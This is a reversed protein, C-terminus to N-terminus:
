AAVYGMENKLFEVFSMPNGDGYLKSFGKMDNHAKHYGYSSNRLDEFREVYEDYAEKDAETAQNEISNDAAETQMEMAELASQADECTSYGEYDSVGDEVASVESHYTNYHEYDETFWNYFIIKRRTSGYATVDAIVWVGHNIEKAFDDCDDISLEVINREDTREYDYTALIRKERFNLETVNINMKKARIM